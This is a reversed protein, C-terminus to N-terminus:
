KLSSLLLCSDWNTKSSCISNLLVMGIGAMGELLGIEGLLPSSTGSITSFPTHDVIANKSSSFSLTKNIWFRAADKCNLDATKQYVMHFIHAIGATGHCFGADYVENDPLSRRNASYLFIAMALDYTSSDNLIASAELLAWGIGLDGYCWALRSKKKTNNQDTYLMDPFFCKDIDTNQCISHYFNVAREILELCISPAIQAKFAECLFLIISAMGHSLSTNIQGNHRGNYDYFTWKGTYKPGKICLLNLQQVLNELGITLTLDELGSLLYIGTGLAGHLYDYNGDKITQGAFNLLYPHSPRLVDISDEDIFDNKILYNILWGFGALGNSLSCSVKSNNIKIISDEIIKVGHNIFTQNDTLIGFEFMYIAQGWTGSM